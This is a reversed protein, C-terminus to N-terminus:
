TQSTDVCLGSVPWLSGGRTQASSFWETSEDRDTWWGRDAAHLFGHAVSAVKLSPLALSALIQCTHQTFPNGQLTCLVTVEEKGASNTNRPLNLRGNRLNTTRLDDSQHVLLGLSFACSRM